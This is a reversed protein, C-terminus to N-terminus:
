SGSWSVWRGRSAMSRPFTPKRSWHSECTDPRPSELPLGLTIIVVSCRVLSLGVMVSYPARTALAARSRAPPPRRSRGATSGPSALQPQEALRDAIEGALRDYREPQRCIYDQAKAAKGSVSRHAIDWAENLHGIIEGYDQFTYAGNRQTVTGFHDYLDPDHGDFMLRGPMAIKGKLMARYALIGGEPDREM